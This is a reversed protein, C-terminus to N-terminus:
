PILYELTNSMYNVNTSAPDIVVTMDDAPTQAAYTITYTGDPSEDVSSPVVPTSPLNTVIFDAVVLGVIPTSGSIGYYDTVATVVVETTTPAGSVALTAGKPEFYETMDLEIESPAITVINGVSMSKKFTITIMVNSVSANTKMPTSLVTINQVPLGYANGATVDALSAYAILQGTQTVIMVDNEGCELRKYKGAEQPTVNTVMLTMVTTGDSLKEIEGGDFTQNNAENEVWTPNLVSPTIHFRKSADANKFLGNIVSAPIPNTSVDLLNRGGNNDYKEFFIIRDTIDVIGQCGGVFLSSIGNDCTCFDSM